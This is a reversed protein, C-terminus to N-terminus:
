YGTGQEFTAAIVSYGKDTAHVDSFISCEWTYSCINPNPTTAGGFASFVDVVTAYGAADAAIHQNVEEVYPVTNPCKNQLPDYYNMMVLDGTLQGNVMLAAHLEPLITQRLNSDLTVLASNFASVNIVCTSTNILPLFDNAGIDLTVPSVQGSHLALYILAADLQPGIYPYKRLFPFPCGGNIMTSSTEGPCGMNALAGVGYQQLNAYFDNAYGDDYNLDPQYGFALSDGLALYYHKPGVLNAHSSAFAAPAVTALLTLALLLAVMFPRRSVPKTAEAICNLM